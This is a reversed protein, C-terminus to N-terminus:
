SHMNEGEEDGASLASGNRVLDDFQALLSLPKKGIRPPPQPHYATSSTSTTKSAMKLKNLLWFLWFVRLFCLEMGEPAVDIIDYNANCTGTQFLIM